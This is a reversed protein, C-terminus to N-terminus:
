AYSNERNKIKATADNMEKKNDEISSVYELFTDVITYRYQPNIIVGYKSMKNKLMKYVSFAYYHFLEYPYFYNHQYLLGNNADFMLFESGYKCNFTNPKTLFWLAWMATQSRNSFLHPWVKYLMHSKIGGGIVGYVTYDETDLDQVQLEEYSKINDYKKEDYEKQYDEGFLCLKHTVTHLEDAQAFSFAKRYSDLEKAQTNKLTRRIIPCKDRLVIKFASEDGDEYEEIGELNFIDIYNQRNDNKDELFKNISEAMIENFNLAYNVKNQKIVANFNTQFKSFDNDKSITGAKTEIFKDFYKDVGKELAVVVEQVHKADYCMEEVDFVDVDRIM